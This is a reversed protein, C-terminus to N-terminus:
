LELTPWAQEEYVTALVPMEELPLNPVPKEALSPKGADNRLIEENV